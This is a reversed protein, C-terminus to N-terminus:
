SLKMLEMMKMSKPSQFGQQFGLSVVFYVLGMGSPMLVELVLETVMEVM